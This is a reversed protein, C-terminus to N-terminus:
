NVDKELMLEVQERWRAPVEEVTLKGIRILRVYLNVMKYVNYISYATEPTRM